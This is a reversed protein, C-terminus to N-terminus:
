RRGNRDHRPPGGGPGKLLNWKVAFDLTGLGFVSPTESGHANGIRILPFDM